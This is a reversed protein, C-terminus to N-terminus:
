IFSEIRLYFATNKFWDTFTIPLPSFYDKEEEKDKKSKRKKHKNSCNQKARPLKRHCQRHHYTIVPLVSLFTIHTGYSPFLTKYKKRERFRRTGRYLGRRCNNKLKEKRHLRYNCLHNAYRRKKNPNGAPKIFTTHVKGPLNNCIFESTVHIIDFCRDYINFSKNMKTEMETVKYGFNIIKVGVKVLFDWLGSPLYAWIIHWLEITSLIIIVLACIINWGTNYPQYPM